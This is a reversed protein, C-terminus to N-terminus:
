TTQPKPMNVPPLPNQKLALSTRIMLEDNVAQRAAKKTKFSAAVLVGTAFEYVNYKSPYIPSKAIIFAIGAMSIIDVKSKPPLEYYGIVGKTYYAIQM